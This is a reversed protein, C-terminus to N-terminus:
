RLYKKEKGIKRLYKSLPIYKVAEFFEVAFDNFSLGESIKNDEILNIMENIKDFDTM